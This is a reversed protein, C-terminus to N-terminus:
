EDEFIIKEIKILKDTSLGDFFEFTEDMFCTGCLRNLINHLHIAGIALALFAIVYLPIEWIRPTLTSFASLSLQNPSLNM